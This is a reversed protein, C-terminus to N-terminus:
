KSFDDTNIAVLKSIDNEDAMWDQFRSYGEDDSNAYGCIFEHRGTCGAELAKMAKKGDEDRIVMILVPKKTEMAQMLKKSPPQGLADVLVSETM